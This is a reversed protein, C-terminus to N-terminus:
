RLRVPRGRSGGHGGDVVLGVAEGGAGRAVGADPDVHAADRRAEGARAEEPELALVQRAGVREGLREAAQLARDHLHRLQEGGHRVQQRRFVRGLQLLELGVRRRHAGGEDLPAHLGLEARVPVGAEAGEVELGRGRGRESLHVPRGRRRALRQGALQLVGVHLRRDLRVELLEPDGEGEM